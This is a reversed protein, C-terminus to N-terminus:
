EGSEIRYEGAPATDYEVLNLYTYVTKSIDRINEVATTEPCQESMVCIVYTTETGYVIAADHQYNDTEGTKNAVVVDDPVGEPIKWVNAQNKLLDLMKDSAESNVCKRFYIEELLRGCDEVSTTNNENDLGIPESGSPHLTHVVQTDVYHEAKLYETSEEAGQLFDHSETQLRVLENYSENDSVTIMNWLLDDIQAKVADSDADAQILKGENERVQDMNQFTKEMIFLKILSASRLPQNNISLKEGTNLSKVYVSWTGEYSSLMTDLRKELAQMVSDLEELEGNADISFGEPTVIVYEGSSEGETQFLRGNEGGFYYYGEFNQGNSTMSVYHVGTETVLRGNENFYYYGDFFSGDLELKDIYRIQPAATLRGLNNVMYFGDFTADQCVTEKIHVVHPSGARFKGSEDHYYYGQFTTGDIEVSDFYHVAATHEAAGSADLCYFGDSKLIYKGSGDSIPRIQSEETVSLLSDTKAEALAGRPLVLWFALACTMVGAKRWLHKIRM